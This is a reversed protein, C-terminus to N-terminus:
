SSLNMICRDLDKIMNNIKLKTLSKDNSVLFTNAMKLSQYKEKWQKLDNTQKLLLQDKSNLVNNINLNENKLEIILLKLKEINSQLLILNEISKSM